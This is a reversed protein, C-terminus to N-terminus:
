LTVAAAGRLWHAGAVLADRSRQPDAPLVQLARAVALTYRAAQQLGAAALLGDHVGAHQVQLGACARLLGLHESFTALLGAPEPKAAWLPWYHRHRSAHQPGTDPLRGLGETVARIQNAALAQVLAAPLTTASPVPGPPQLPAHVMAALVAAMQAASEVGQLLRWWADRWAALERWHWDAARAMAVVDGVARVPPYPHASAAAVHFAFPQRDAAVMAAATPCALTFAVEVGDPTQAVSRPFNRCGLPMADLGGARHLHCSKEATDALACTGNPQRLVGGRDGGILSALFQTKATQGATDGDLAAAIRAPEGDGVTAKWPLACCAMSRGCRYAALARPLRVTDDVAIKLWVSKCRLGARTCRM